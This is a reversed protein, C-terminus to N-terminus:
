RPDNARMRSGNQSSSLPRRELMLIHRALREYVSDVFTDKIGM